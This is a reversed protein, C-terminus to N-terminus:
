RNPEGHIVVDVGNSATFVLGEQQAETFAEVHEPEQLWARWMQWAEVRSTATVKARIKFSYTVAVPEPPADANRGMVYGDPHVWVPGIAGPVQHIDEGCNECVNEDPDLSEARLAKHINNLEAMTAHRGQKTLSDLYDAQEEIQRDYDYDPEYQDRAIRRWERAEDAEYNTM